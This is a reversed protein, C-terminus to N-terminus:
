KFNQNLVDFTNKSCKAWDYNKARQVALISNNNRLSSNNCYELIANQISLISFPDVLIGAEGVIEPMATINSTIVPCGTAMAELPPLGFGEYFSVYVFFLANKYLSVIYKEDLYGTFFVREQNSDLTYEGFVAGDGKAGVVVLGIDDDVKSKIQNWAKLLTSLNKRPEIAGLTLIYRKYPLQDKYNDKPEDFFYREVGNYVVSIKSEPVNLKEIMRSKTFESIAIFHRANKFLLPWFIKYWLSFTNSVWEPHDLPVLDHITVVQNKVSIPGANSPSWLIEDKKIERPLRIQEWFHGKLGHSYSKDPRIVRYSDSGFYELISKTYRQVGTVKADLCRTNCVIKM